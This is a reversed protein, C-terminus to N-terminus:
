SPASWARGGDAWQDVEPSQPAGAMTRWMAEEAALCVAPPVLREVLLYGDRVFAGLEAPTLVDARSCTVDARSCTFAASGYPARPRGESGGGLSLGRLVKALRRSKSPRAMECDRQYMM